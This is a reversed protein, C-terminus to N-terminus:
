KANSVIQFVEITGRVRTQPANNGPRLISKARHVVAEALM